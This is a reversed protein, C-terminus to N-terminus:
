HTYVYGSRVPIIEVHVDGEFYDNEYNKQNIKQIVKPLISDLDKNPEYDDTLEGRDDMYFGFRDNPDYRGKYYVYTERMGDNGTLNIEYRWGRPGSM